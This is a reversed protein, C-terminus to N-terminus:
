KAKVDRFIGKFSINTNQPIKIRAHVKATFNISTIEYLRNSFWLHRM